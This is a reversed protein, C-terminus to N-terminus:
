SPTPLFIEATLLADPTTQLSEALIALNDLQPVRKGSELQAWYAQTIKARGAAEVQTLNLELRRRRLNAALIKRLQEPKM